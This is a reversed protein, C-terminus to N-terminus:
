RTSQEYKPTSGHTRVVELFPVWRWREQPQYWAYRLEMRASKLGSPQSNIVHPIGSVFETFGAYRSQAGSFM